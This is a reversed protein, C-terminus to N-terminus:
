TVVGLQCWLLPGQMQSHVAAVKVTIRCWLCPVTSHLPRTPHRPQTSSWPFSLHDRPSFRFQWSSSHPVHPHYNVLLKRNSLFASASLACWADRALLSPALGAVHAGLGWYWRCLCSVIAAWRRAAALRVRGHASHLRTRKTMALRPFSKRM